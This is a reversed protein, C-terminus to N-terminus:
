LLFNFSFASLTEAPVGKFFSLEFDLNNSEEATETLDTVVLNKETLQNLAASEDSASIIGKIENGSQDKAKYNYNAM